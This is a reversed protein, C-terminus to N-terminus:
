YWDPWLEDCLPHRVAGSHVNEIYQLADDVNSFTKLEEIVKEGLVGNQHSVVTYDM